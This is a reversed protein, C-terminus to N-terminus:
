SFFPRLFALSDTESIVTEKMACFFCFLSFDVSWDAKPMFLRTKIAFALALIQTEWTQLHILIKVLKFKNEKVLNLDRRLDTDKEDIEDFLHLRYYDTLRQLAGFVQACEGLSLCAHLSSGNRLLQRHIVFFGEADEHGDPSVDLFSLIQIGCSIFVNRALANHRFTKLEPSQMDAFHNRRRYTAM